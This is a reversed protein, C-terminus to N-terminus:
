DANLHLGCDLTLTEGTVLPAATVLWFITEAVDAPAGIRHLPARAIQGQRRQEFLNPDLRQVFGDTILAPCIANVRVEPALVRALSLTLTNLAGKSAAYAISSGGGSIAALSSVNVIAADGSRKLHPACARSMLFPGITNVAYIDQFMEPTLGDLDALPVMRTIGAANVLADLRGFQQMAKEALQRCDGDRTVDATAAIAQAGTAEAAQAIAEFAAGQAAEYIGGAVNWGAQAFRLAVGAGIGTGAGTVVVTKTM